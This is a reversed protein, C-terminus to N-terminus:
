ISDKGASSAEKCGLCGMGAPLMLRAPGFVSPLFVEPIRRILFSSSGDFVRGAAKSAVLCGAHSAPPIPPACTRERGVAVVVPPREAAFVGMLGVFTAAATDLFSAVPVDIAGALDSKVSSSEKGDSKGLRTRGDEGSPGSSLVNTIPPSCGKESGWAGCGLSLFVAALSSPVFLDRFLPLSTMDIPM